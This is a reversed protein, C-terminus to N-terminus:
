FKIVEIYDFAFIQNIIIDNYKVELSPVIYTDYKIKVSDHKEVAFKIDNNIIINLHSIKRDENKNFDECIKIVEKIDQRIM